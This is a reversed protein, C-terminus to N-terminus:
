GNLIFDKGKSQVSHLLLSGLNWHNLQTRGVETVQDQKHEESWVSSSIRSFTHLIEYPARFPSQFFVQMSGYSLPHNQPALYPSLFAIYM